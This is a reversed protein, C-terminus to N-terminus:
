KIVLKVECTPDIIYESEDGSVASLVYAGKALGRTSLNFAWNTGDFAFMNGEDGRGAAGRGATDLGDLAGPDSNSGQYIAQLVPPSELYGIYAEYEDLLRMRLPVVRNPGNVQVDRDAPAKFGACSLAPGSPPVPTTRGAEEGSTVITIAQGAGGPFEFLIPTYGPIDTQFGTVNGFFTGWSLGANTLGENVPFVDQGPGFFVNQFNGYYQHYGSSLYGSLEDRLFSNQSTWWARFFGGSPDSYAVDSMSVIGLGDGSAAWNIANIIFGRPGDDVPGPSPSIYSMVAGRGTLFTRTGRAATIADKAALLRGMDMNSSWLSPIFLVDYRTFDPTPDGFMWFHVNWVNSGDNWPDYTHANDGIEQLADNRQGSDGWMSSGEGYILVEITEARAVSSAGFGLMAVMLGCVRSNM